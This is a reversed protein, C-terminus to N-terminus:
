LTILVALDHNYAPSQQLAVSGTGGPTCSTAGPWNLTDTRLPTYNVATDVANKPDLWRVKYTGAAAGLCVRLNQERYGGSTVIAQYGDFTLDRRKSHHIYLLWRPDTFTGFPELAAWFKLSSAEQAAYPGPNIWSPSTPNSTQAGVYVTLKNLLRRLVGLQRRTETYDTTNCKYGYQDYVGGQNVMFEWAEARGADVSGGTNTTVCGSGGTIKTENFGFVKPQNYYERILRIAGLGVGSLPTGLPPRLETYHSNIISGSTVNAGSGVFTNASTTTFPEFAVHHRTAIRGTQVYTTEEYNILEDAIAKQWAAVTTPNSQSKTGWGCAITSTARINEPENAIEFYVNPYSWLADVTWRIVNTIYPKMATYESSATNTFNATDSFGPLQTNNSRWAHTKSWPGLGLNGTLPSFLSVEVIINKSNAYSVVNALRTFYNANRSDLYWRGIGDSALVTGNYVFPNDNVWGSTSGKCTTTDGPGGVISVWLRIKNLGQNFLDTLYTTHTAYNCQGTGTVNFHCANDASAGVLVIPSGQYNLYHKSPAISAESFSSDLPALGIPVIKGKGRGAPPYLALDEFSPEMPEGLTPIYDSDALSEAEEDHEAPGPWTLDAPNQGMLLAAPLALGCLALVIRSRARLSM